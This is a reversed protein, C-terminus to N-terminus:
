KALETLTYGMKKADEAIKDGFSHDESEDFVMWIIPYNGNKSFTSYAVYPLVHEETERDGKYKANGTYKCCDYQGVTELTSTDVSISCTNDLYLGWYDNMLYIPSLFDKANDIFVPLITDVTSIDSLYNARTASTVLVLTDDNQYAVLNKGAPILSSFKIYLYYDDFNFDAYNGWNTLDECKNYVEVVYKLGSEKDVYPWDHGDNNGENQGNNEISTEPNKKETKSSETTIASSDGTNKKDKNGCAAMGLAMVAAMAILAIRKTLNNRKM